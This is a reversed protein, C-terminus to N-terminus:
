MGGRTEEVFCYIGARVDESLHAELNSIYRAAVDLTSKCVSFAGYGRQWAFRKGMWKSSSAEIDLLADALAITPPLQLM